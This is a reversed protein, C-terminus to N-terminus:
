VSNINRDHHHYWQVVHVLKNHPIMLRYKRHHNQPEDHVYHIFVSSNPDHPTNLPTQSQLLQPESVPHTHQITPSPNSITTTDNIFDLKSPTVYMERLHSRNRPLTTGNPTQVIYSRPQDCKKTITAPCWTKNVKDPIRVKHGVFMPSLDTKRLSKDHYTKMGQQKNYLWERLMAPGPGSRHPILKNITRGFMLEAPSLM